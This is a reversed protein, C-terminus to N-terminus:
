RLHRAGVPFKVSFSDNSRNPNGTAAAAIAGAEEVVAEVGAVVEVDAALDAVDGVAVEGAMVVDVAVAAKARLVLKTSSM